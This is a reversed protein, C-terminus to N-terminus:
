VTKVMKREMESLTAVKSDIISKGDFTANSITSIKCSLISPLINPFTVSHMLVFHMLKTVHLFFKRFDFHEILSNVMPCQGFIFCNLITYDGVKRLGHKFFLDVLLIRM